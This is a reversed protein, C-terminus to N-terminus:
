TLFKHKKLKEFKLRVIKNGDVEGKIFNSNEIDIKYLNEGNEGKPKKLKEFKIDPDENLKYTYLSDGYRYIVDIDKNYTNNVWKSSNDFINLKKINYLKYKGNDLTFYPKRNGWGIYKSEQLYPLFKNAKTELGKDMLQNYFKKNKELDLYNHYDKAEGDVEDTSFDYVEFPSIKDNNLLNKPNKFFRGKNHEIVGEFVKGDGLEIDGKEIRREREKEMQKDLFSNMVTKSPNIPSDGINFADKYRRIARSKLLHQVRDEIRKLKEEEIMDNNTIEENRKRVENIVDNLISIDAKAEIEYKIDHRKLSLGKEIEDIIDKLEKESKTSYDIELEPEYETYDENFGGGIVVNSPKYGLGGKGIQKKGFSHELNGLSYDFNSKYISM